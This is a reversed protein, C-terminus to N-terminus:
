VELIEGTIKDCVLVIVKGDREFMWQNPAPDVYWEDTDLEGYCKKYYRKLKTQAQRDTVM